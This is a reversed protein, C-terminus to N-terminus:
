FGVLMSTAQEFKFGKAGNSRHQHLVIECGRRLLSALVLVSAYLRVKNRLLLGRKIGEFSCFFM